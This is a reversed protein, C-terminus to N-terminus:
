AVTKALRRAADEPIGAALLVERTHAGLLPGASKVSASWGVVRPVVGPMAITKGDAMPARVINGRAQIQPDAAIEAANFVRGLTVGGKEAASLVEDVTHEIMWADLLAYIADSNELRGQQTVFRPDNRLAVGGIMELLSGATADTGASLAIYGGDRTPHVNSIASNMPFENGARLEPKGSATAVPVQWEIMRQVAMHLPVLVDRPVDGVAPRRLEVVTRLAALAASLFEALPFEPQIPTDDPMGTLAMMGTVAATLESNCSWPWLDPRDTGTPVVHVLMPKKALGALERLWPNAGMGAPAVDTVVVDARSLLARIAQQADPAGPDIALSKKNRGIVQWWEAPERARMPSGGPLAECAIVEANFDALLSATFCAGPSGSLELVTIGQLAEGGKRLPAAVPRPGSARRIVPAEERAVAPGIAGASRLREVEAPALGLYHQLVQDTHEGLAANNFPQYGNVTALEPIISGPVSFNGADKDSADLVDGRARLYANKAASLGDLVPVIGAGAAQLATRLDEPPQTVAWFALAKRPDEANGAPKPLLSPLVSRPVSALFWEGSAAKLCQMHPRRDAEIGWTYADNSGRRRPSSGTRELLAIQCEIMRFLPEHLALDIYAGEGGQADRNYLALAIGLTGFMGSCTDALSFGIMMPRVQPEGTLTVVGSLGELTKGFGPRGAMPGTQGFGSISLMVLRPNMAHVSKWGFGLKEMAEPRYNELLVDARKVLGELVARGEPKKLDLTICQKNRSATGWWFSVGNKKNGLFRQVDGKGPTEIKIVEAGLDALLSGVFPGSVVTGLEIVTVGALPLTTSMCIEKDGGAPEAAAANRM